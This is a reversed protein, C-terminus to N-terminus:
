DDARRDSAVVGSMHMVVTASRGVPVRVGYIEDPPTVGRLLQPNLDSLLGVDVDLAEAVVRLPTLGPVFVNDYEYREVDAAFGVADASNALHTVAILKPIYERTERPLYDRVQWYIDDDGRRGERGRSERPVKMSPTCPPPLRRKPAVPRPVPM